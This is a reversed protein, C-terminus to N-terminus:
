WAKLRANAVDNSIDDGLPWDPHFRILQAADSDWEVELGAKCREVATWAIMVANDTCMNVPPCVLAVGKTDLVGSIRKRLESNAAVGGSMVLSTVNIGMKHKTYVLARATRRVVHDLVADQFGAALTDHYERTRIERERKTENLDDECLTDAYLKKKRRLASKLGAFSFNCNRHRVMPEKFLVKPLGRLEARKAAQEVALGGKCDDTEIDLVRATKDLAEGPADDLTKGLRYYRDVGKALVLQCNGGSVLLVLFPFQLNPDILRSTLAHAELHNICMLPKNHIRALEKAKTLGVALCPALGPGSTVAVLDIDDIRCEAESLASQVVGEIHKLHGVAAEKPYVGGYKELMEKQQSHRTDSLVLGEGTVVSAATDDCSSEIGLVRM